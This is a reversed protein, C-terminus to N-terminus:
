AVEPEEIMCGCGSNGPAAGWIDIGAFVDPQAALRAGLDDLSLPTRIVVGDVKQREELFTVHQGLFDRVKREMMASYRFAERQMQYRSTWHTIGAKSCDGGCNGHGYGFGYLRPRDIGAHRMYWTPHLEGEIRGILPASVRWGRKHWNPWIGTWVEREKDFSAFRHAEGGGIGWYIITDSPDCAGVIWRQLIERKLVRSCPDRSSNGLFRTDRYVEWPDRGEVLWILEPIDTACRDRLQALFARFDPNGAYEEIPVDDGVRYDPFDEAAPVWSADRGFMKLAAEIGFRYSDADEYLTDTFVLRHEDGRRVLERHVIKATLWTGGGLSWTSLHLTM